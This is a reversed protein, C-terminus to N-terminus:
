RIVLDIEIPTAALADAWFWVDLAVASSTDRAAMLVCRGIVSDRPLLGGVAVPPLTAALAYRGTRDTFTSGGGGLAPSSCSSMLVQVNNALEGNSKTVVGFVNAYGSAPGPAISTCAILMCALAPAAVRSRM